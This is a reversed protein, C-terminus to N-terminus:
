KCVKEVQLMDYWLWTSQPEGLKVLGISIAIVLSAMGVFEIISKIVWKM